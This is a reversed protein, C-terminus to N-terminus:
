GKNKYFPNMIIKLKVTRSCANAANHEIIGGVTCYQCKIITKVGNIQNGRGICEGEIDCRGVYSKTGTNEASKDKALIGDKIDDLTWGNSWYTIEREAKETNNIAICDVIPLTWVPAWVAIM